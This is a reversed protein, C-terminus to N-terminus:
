KDKFIIVSENKELMLFRDRAIRSKIAEPNNKAVQIEEKLGKIKQARNKIDHNLAVSEKQLESITRHKIYINKLVISFITLIVAYSLLRLFKGRRTFPM